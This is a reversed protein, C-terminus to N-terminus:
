ADGKGPDASDAVADIKTVNLARPLRDLFADLDERLYVKLKRGPMIRPFILGRRVWDRFDNISVNCYWAAQAVRYAGRVSVNRPVSVLGLGM